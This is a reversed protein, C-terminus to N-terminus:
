KLNFFANPPILSVNSVPSSFIPSNSFLWLLQGFLFVSSFSGGDMTLLADTLQPFNEIIRICVPFFIQLITLSFKELNSSFQLGASDLLNLSGRPLLFMLFLVLFSYWPVDYYFQGFAIIFFFDQLSLSFFFYCKTYPSVFTFSFVTKEKSGIETLLPPM